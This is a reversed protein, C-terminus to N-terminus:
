KLPIKNKRRLFNAEKVLYPWRYYKCFKWWFLNAKNRARRTRLPPFDDTLNQAGLLTLLNRMAENFSMFSKRKEGQVVHPFAKDLQRLYFQVAEFIETPCDDATSSQGSFLWRLTLWKELYRTVFSKKKEGINDRYIKFLPDDPWMALKEQREAETVTDVAHLVRRIDEKKVEDYGSLRERSGRIEFKTPIRAPLGRRELDLRWFKKITRLDDAPIPRCTQLWQSLRDRFYSNRKYLNKRNEKFAASFIGVGNLAVSRVNEQYFGGEEAGSDDAAGVLTDNVLIGGFAAGCSYCVIDGRHEDVDWESALCNACFTGELGGAGCVSVWGNNESNIPISCLAEFIDDSM